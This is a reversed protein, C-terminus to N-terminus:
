AHQAGRGMGGVVRKGGGEGDSLGAMHQQLNLPIRGWGHSSPGESHTTLGGEGVAPM